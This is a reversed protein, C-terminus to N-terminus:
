RARGTWLYLGAITCLTLTCLACVGYDGREAVQLLRLM